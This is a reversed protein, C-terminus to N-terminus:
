RWSSDSLLWIRSRSAPASLRNRRHTEAVEKARKEEPLVYAIRVGRKLADRLAAGSETDLVEMGSDFPLDTCLRVLLDGEDLQQVPQFLRKIHGDTRMFVGPAM